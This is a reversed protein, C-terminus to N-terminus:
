KSSAFLLQRCILVQQEPQPLKMGFSIARPNYSWTSSSVVHTWRDTTIDYTWAVASGSPDYIWQAHAQDYSWLESGGATQTWTRTATNFLWVDSDDDKRWINDSATFTYISSTRADSWTWIGQPMIMELTIKEDIAPDADVVYWRVSVVNGYTPDAPSHVLEAAQDAADPVASWTTESQETLTWSPASGGFPTFTASM